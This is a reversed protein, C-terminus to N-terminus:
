MNYSRSNAAPALSLTMLVPNHPVVMPAQGFFASEGPTDFGYVEQILFSGSRINVDILVKIGMGNCEPM